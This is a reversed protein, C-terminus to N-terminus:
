DNRYRTGFIYRDNREGVSAMKRDMTRESWNSCWASGWVRWDEGEYGKKKEKEELARQVKYIGDYREDTKVKKKEGDKKRECM